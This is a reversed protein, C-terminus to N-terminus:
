NSPIYVEVSNFIELVDHTFEALRDTIGKSQILLKLYRTANNQHNQGAEQLTPPLDQCFKERLSTLENNATCELLAHEPTEVLLKCFRCLRRERPVQPRHWRLREVALSHGSLILNVLAKRHKYNGVRLYHRFHLVKQVAKGDNETEMRGTLLYTRPSHDIFHQLQVKFGRDISKIVDEIMKVSINRFNLPHTEFPLESLAYRLDMAWCQKGELALKISEKLARKALADDPLQLLYKLYNLAYNIRRYRLPIIATETFLLPTPCKEGVSLLKQLFRHQINELLELLPPDIDLCIEAGHVLHPDMLAWYLKRMEWPTMKGILSQVALIMNGVNRAKDAKAEYHRKFINRDTPGVNFGIYCQSEQIRVVEKGFKFVPLARPLPGFILCASKVANIIMGNEACWKDLTDMRAQMGRPCTTFLSIDDAQEVHCISYGDLDIDVESLRFILDVLYINWLLPSCTDGILIGITSQFVESTEGNHRVIYEMRQYIMRLWDFIMGGAGLKRLKLWLTSQDTSPFANSLDAFMVYLTLGQARAKEIATRLIFMNNNTRYGARFGNQTPPIIKYKECWETLRMHILLTMLKLLCSELGVARYNNPDDKPRGRKLIGVIVTTLWSAPADRNELCKNLLDCLAANDIEIIERYGIRDIGRASDKRPELHVKARAVEEETFPRSFFKEETTDETKEPITAAVACNLDLISKDFTMPTPQIPNMRKEFVEKLQEASVPLEPERGNLIERAVKWFEAESEANLLRVKERGRHSELGMEHGNARLNELEIDPEPETVTLTAQLKCEQLSNGSHM